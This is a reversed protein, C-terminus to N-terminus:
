ESFIKKIEKYRKLDEKEIQQFKVTGGEKCIKGFNPEAAISPDFLKNPWWLRQNDTLRHNVGQVQQKQRAKGTDCGIRKKM